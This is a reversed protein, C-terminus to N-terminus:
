RQNPTPLTPARDPDIGAFRLVAPLHDEFDSLAHDSGQIVIASVDPLGRVMTRWDIVEDGTAAILLYREPRSLTRAAIGELAEIDSARIEFSGPGHWRTHVGIQAALLRPAELAPNILVARCGTQEAIARAYFGGLSSGVVVDRGTPALHERILRWAAAPADPLQPCIFDTPVGSRVIAEGLLRAKFSAPSSRFGHLYILRAPEILSNM